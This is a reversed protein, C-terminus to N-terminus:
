ILNYGKPYNMQKNATGGYFDGCSFLNMGDTRKANIPYISYFENGDVSSKLDVEEGVVFIAYHMGAIAAILTNVTAGNEIKIIYGSGNIYMGFKMSTFGVAAGTTSFGLVPLRQATDIYQFKIAGDYGSPLHIDGSALNGYGNTQSTTTIIGETDVINSGSMTVRSWTWDNNAPGITIQSQFSSFIEFHGSNNPHVDDDSVGTYPDYNRTQVVAFPYGCFISQLNNLENNIGDIAIDSGKNYPLKAYGADTMKLVHGVLVPKCISPDKMTGFFDIVVPRDDLSVIKISHGEGVLHNFVLSGPVFQHNWLGFTVGTAYDNSNYVGKSFGDILVEFAGYDNVIGDTGIFGVVVNNGVFSWEVFSDHSQLIVGRHLSNIRNAKGGVNSSLFTASYDGSLTAQSAAEAYGLFCNSVMARMCNMIMSVNKGSSGDARIDNYGLLIAAMSNNGVQPMNTYANNLGKWVGNGSAGQNFLKMGLWDSLQNIWSLSIPSAASGPNTISDGFGYISVGKSTAM